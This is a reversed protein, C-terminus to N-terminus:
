VTSDLTPSEMDNYIKLILLAFSVGTLILIM